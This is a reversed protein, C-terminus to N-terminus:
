APCATPEPNSEPSADSAQRRTAPLAFTVAIAVVVLGAAALFSLSYGDRLAAVTPASGGAVSGTRAAALTALTAIGIAAGVQQATNNLGSALGADAPDTGSMALMIAAPIALGMGAGLLALLPMVDVAYSGDVPARGLVALAVAVAVLGTVLATRGGFRVTLRASLLLSVAGIVVPAPLFALGTALSDLGLVRQLYLATLFQFGFGAAILLVVVLNAVSVLRSRFIRPALLPRAARAQRLVFGALLALAVAAAGLTEVRGATPEATRVIAFIGLSLGVTVLVAGLYDAGRGLGSGDGAPLLRKSVLLATLGIPVNILFAWHWSALQTISGGVILGITSGGASVFSYGGMAKAQGAPEPYLRVIMGLIVASALAGGLGQVFRGALLLGATDALGCALSAATFTALGVVFVRTQGLLDGLRGALLLLGAFAILYTNMVWALGAPSFGLERQITPLAVTVVSGDLIIMLQMACLVALALSRSRGSHPTM